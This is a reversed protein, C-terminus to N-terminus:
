AASRRERGTRGTRSPGPSASGAASRPETRALGQARTSRARVGAKRLTADDIGVFQYAEPAFGYARHLTRVGEVVQDSIPVPRSAKAAKRISALTEGLELLAQVRLLVDIPKLDKGGSRAAGVRLEDLLRVRRKETRGDLRSVRSGGLLVDNFHRAARRKEVAEVSARGGAQKTARKVLPAHWTAVNM